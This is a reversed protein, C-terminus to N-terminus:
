GANPKWKLLQSEQKLLQIIVTITLHTEVLEKMAQKHSFVNLLRVYLRFPFLFLLGRWIILCWGFIKSSFYPVVTNAPIKQFQSTPNCKQTTKKKHSHLIAIVIFLLLLLLSALNVSTFKKGQLALPSGQVIIIWKKEGPSSSTTWCKTLSKLRMATNKAHLWTQRRSQNTDVTYMYEM